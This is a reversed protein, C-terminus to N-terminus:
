RKGQERLKESERRILEFPLDETKIKHRLRPYVYQYKIIGNETTIEVNYGNEFWLFKLKSYTVGAVNNYFIHEDPMNKRLVVFERGNAKYSYEKGQRMFNITVGSALLAILGFIATLISKGSSFGSLLFLGLSSGITYVGGVALIATIIWLLATVKKSLPVYFTGRGIVDNPNTARGDEGFYTEQPVIVRGDKGLTPMDAAYGGVTPSVKAMIKSVDYGGEVGEPIVPTNSARAEQEARYARVARATNRESQPLSVGPMNADKGLLEAMRDYVDKKRSQANAIDEAQIPARKDGAANLDAQRAQEVYAANRVMEARESIIYFPTNKESLYGDFTIAYEEDAGNIRVTVDYGCVKGFLTRSIFHVTQVERYYITHTDGGITLVMKEDNATYSCRYGSTVARLGLVAVIVCVAIIAGLIVVCILSLLLEGNPLSPLVERYIEMATVVSIVILFIAASIILAKLIHSGKFPARFEGSESFGFRGRDGPNIYNKGTM